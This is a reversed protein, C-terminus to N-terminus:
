EMYENEIYEDSETVIPKIFHTLMGNVWEKTIIEGNLPNAMYDIIDKVSFEKKVVFHKVSIITTDTEDLIVAKYNGAPLNPNELYTYYMGSYPDGGSVQSILAGTKYESTETSVMDSVIYTVRPGTHKIFMDSGTHIFPFLM